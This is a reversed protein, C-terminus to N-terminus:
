YLMHTCVIAGSESRELPDFIITPIPVPVPVIVTYLYRTKGEKRGTKTENVAQVRLIVYKYQLVVITSACVVSVSM